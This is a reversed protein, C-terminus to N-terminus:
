LFFFFFFFDLGSLERGTADDVLKMEVGDLLRGCSGSRNAGPVCCTQAGTSESMGFANCIRINLSQFFEMTEMRIPAAGTAFLRCRDLGLAGRVASFVLKDALWYGWPNWDESGFEAARSAATGVGRAWTSIAKKLGKNARGTAVMKEQIKEWVRPVAFFMTPRVEKLTDQLLL